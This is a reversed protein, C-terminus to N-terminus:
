GVTSVMFHWVWYDYIGRTDYVDKEKKAWDLIADVDTLAISREDVDRQAYTMGGYERCHRIDASMVRVERRLLFSIKGVYAVFARVTEGFADDEVVFEGMEIHMECERRRFERYLEILKRAEELPNVIYKM